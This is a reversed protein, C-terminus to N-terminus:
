RVPHNKEGPVEPATVLHRCLEGVYFVVTAGVRRVDPWFTSHSFRPALALRAGGVLAGGCAVLIGTAHYLPLACYVTDAPTLACAAASGLAGLIIRRNTIRAAKPLGSTGSTFLLMALEGAPASAAPAQAPDASAVAADISVVGEPLPAPAREAGTLFV